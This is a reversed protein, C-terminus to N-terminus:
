TEVPRTLYYCEKGLPHNTPYDRIEFGLSRYCEFAATNDRYVFLSFEQLPFLKQGKDMLSTVLRRGLGKGRRDPSVILRALNIREIRVYLQGFACFGHDIDNLAFSAMDPWHCNTHFSKATFPYRFDPGGWVRTSEADPLWTMLVDINADTARDLSWSVKESM